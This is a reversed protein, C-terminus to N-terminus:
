HLVQIAETTMNARSLITEPTPPKYGLASHPRVTNYHQRWQEILIKAEKLTYFIECNLLEDRLKGNFSENYGNEWTTNGESNM